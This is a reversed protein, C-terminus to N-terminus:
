VGEYLHPAVIKGDYSGGILSITTNGKDIKFWASDRGVINIMSYTANGRKLTISKEGAKSTYKIIDGALIGSSLGNINKVYNNDIIFHGDGISIDIAGSLNSKMTLEIVLGTTVDGEYYIPYRGPGSILTPYSLETKFWPDPCIISIHFKERESWIMPENREVYGYIYCDRSDTKVKLKVRRGIPFFKYTLKRIEEVSLPKKNSGAINNEYAGLNLVINRKEVRSTNFLSGDMEVMDLTIISASSPGLGDISEIYFGSKEPETMSIELTDSTIDNEVLIYNLM